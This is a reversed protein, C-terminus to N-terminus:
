KEKWWGEGGERKQKNTERPPQCAALTFSASTSPEPFPSNCKGKWLWSIIINLHKMLAYRRRRQLRRRGREALRPSDLLHWYAGEWAATPPWSPSVVAWKMCRHKGRQKGHPVEMDFCIIVHGWMQTNQQWTLLLCELTIVVDHMCCKRRELATATDSKTSQLVKFEQSTLFTGLSCTSGTKGTFLQDALHTQPILFTLLRLM